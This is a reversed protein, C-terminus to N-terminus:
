DHNRHWTMTRSYPRFGAAAFSHLSQVNNEQIEANVSTLTPWHEAIAACSQRIISSGRGRGIQDPALYISILADRDRRDFRVVGVAQGAHEAILLCRDANALTGQLWVLHSEYDIPAQTHSIARVAPSNRWAYITEADSATAPRFLLEDGMM